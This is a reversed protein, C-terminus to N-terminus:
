PIAVLVSSTLQSIVSSDQQIESCVQLAFVFLLFLIGHPCLQTEFSCRPTLVPICVEDASTALRSKLAGKIASHIARRTFAISSTCSGKGNLEISKHWKRREHIMVMKKTTGSSLPIDGGILGRSTLDSSQNATDSKIGTCRSSPNSLSIDRNKHTSSPSLPLPERRRSTCAFHSLGPTNELYDQRATVVVDSPGPSNLFISRNHVATSSLNELRNAEQENSCRISGRTKKRPLLSFELLHPPPPVVSSTKLGLM